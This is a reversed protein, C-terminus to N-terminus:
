FSTMPSPPAKAAEPEGACARVCFTTSFTRRKAEAAIVAAAGAKFAGFLAGVYEPGDPLAVLVRQEPELGLVGYVNAFRNALAQVERYRLREEGSVLAVKDGKGERIRADLFYDAINFIEPPEYSM